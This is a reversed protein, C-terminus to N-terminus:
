LPVGDCDIAQQYLSADSHCERLLTRTETNSLLAAIASLTKLHEENKEEPVILAFLIDIPQDDVADFEVPESLTILAAHIKRLGSLRCHPIAVGNGFGTSGLRERSIFNSFLTDGDIEPLQESFVGSLREITTKKSRGDLKARTLNPQLVDIVKM